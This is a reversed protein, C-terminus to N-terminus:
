NICTEERTVKRLAGAARGRRGMEPAGICLLRGFRWQGKLLPQKTLETASCYAVDIDNTVAQAMQADVAADM